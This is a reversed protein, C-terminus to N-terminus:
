VVLLFEIVLLPPKEHFRASPTVLAFCLIERLVPIGMVLDPLCRLAPAATPHKIGMSEMIATITNAVSINDPQLGDEVWNEVAWGGGDPVCTSYKKVLACCCGSCTM